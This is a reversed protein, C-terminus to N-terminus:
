AGQGAGLLALPPALSPQPPCLAPADGVARENAALVSLIIVPGVAARVRKGWRQLEQCQLALQAVLELPTAAVYSALLGTLLLKLVLQLATAYLGLAHPTQGLKDWHWGDYIDRVHTFTVQAQTLAFFWLMDAVASLAVLALARSLAVKKTAGDPEILASQDLHVVFLCWAAVLCTMDPRAAGSVVSCMLLAHAAAQVLAGWFAASGRRKEFMKNVTADRPMHMMAPSRGRVSGQGRLTMLAGASGADEGGRAGRSASQLLRVRQWATMGGRCSSRAVTDGALFAADM